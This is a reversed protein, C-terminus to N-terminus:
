EARGESGACRVSQTHRYKFRSHMCPPKRACLPSSEMHATNETAQARGSNLVASRASELRRLLSCMISLSRECLQMQAPILSPILATALEIQEDGAKNSVPSRVTQLQSFYLSVFGYICKSSFSVKHKPSSVRQCPAIQATHKM